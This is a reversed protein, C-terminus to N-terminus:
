KIIIKKSIDGKTTQVKMIYTGTTTQKVPLQIKAQNRNEVDWSQIFQGLINYLAVSKVETDLTTNLINIMRDNTTFFADLLNVNSDFNDNALLDPNKFRLTFRNNVTGAPLNIEFAEERIDHHLEVKLCDALSGFCNSISDASSCGWRRLQGELTAASNWSM